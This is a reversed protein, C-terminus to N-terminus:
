RTCHLSAAIGALQNSENCIIPTSRSATSEMDVVAAAYRARFYRLWRDIALALAEFLPINLCTQANYPRNREIM